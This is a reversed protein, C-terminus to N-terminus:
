KVNKVESEKVIAMSLIDKYEGNDKYCKRLKGEVQFGINKLLEIALRDEPFVALEIRVIGDSELLSKIASQLADEVFTYHNNQIQKDLGQAFQKDIVTQLNVSFDTIPLFCIFGINRSAKGEKTRALWGRSEGKVVPALNGMLWSDSSTTLKNLYDFDKPTIPFLISKKGSIIM